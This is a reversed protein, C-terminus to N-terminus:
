KSQNIKLLIQCPLEKVRITSSGNYDSYEIRSGNETQEVYYIRNISVLIEEGEIGHLLIM